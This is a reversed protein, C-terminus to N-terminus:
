RIGAAALLRRARESHYLPSGERRLKRLAPDTLILPPAIRRQGSPLKAIEAALTPPSPFKLFSRRSIRATDAGVLFSTPWDAIWAAVTELLLAREAWRAQEFRLRGIVELLPLSFGARLAAGFHRITAMTVLTRLSTVAEDAPFPGVAAAGTQGAPCALAMLASQLALAGESPLAPAPTEKTLSGKCSFCRAIGNLPTRMPVIPADCYPCGDRLPIRHRECALLFGLRWHRRYHAPTEELCAPCYQLGRQQRTKSLPGVSLLFPTDGFRHLRGLAPRIGLLSADTFIQMPLGSRQAIDGLWAESPDRDLDRDWIQKPGWLYTCYDFPIFRAALAARALYSSLLEDTLPGQSLPWRPRPPM